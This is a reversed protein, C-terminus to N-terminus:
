ELNVSDIKIEHFRLKKSFYIEHKVIIYKSSSDPMSLVSHMSDSDTSSDQRKQDIPNGFLLLSEKGFVEGCNSILYAVIAQPTSTSAMAKLPDIQVRSWLISPAICVALNYATMLNDDSKKDIYYLVCM